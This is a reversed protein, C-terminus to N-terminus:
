RHREGCYERGFSMGIHHYSNKTIISEYSILTGSWGIQIILFGVLNTLYLRRKYVM